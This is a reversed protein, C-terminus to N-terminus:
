THDCYTQQTEGAWNEGGERQTVNCLLIQGLVRLETFEQGGQCLMHVLSPEGDWQFCLQVLDSCASHEKMEETINCMQKSVLTKSPM